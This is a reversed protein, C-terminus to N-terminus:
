KYENRKLREYETRDMIVLRMDLANLIKYLRDTSIGHGDLHHCKRNNWYVWATKRGIGTRRIVEAQTLKKVEVLKSLDLDNILIM